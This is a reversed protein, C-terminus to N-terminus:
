HPKTKKCYIQPFVVYGGATEITIWQSFQRFAGGQPRPVESHVIISKEHKRM